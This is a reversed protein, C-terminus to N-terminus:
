RKFKREEVETYELRTLVAQPNSGTGIFRISINDSWRVNPPLNTYDVGIVPGAPDLLVGNVTLAVDGTNVLSWGGYKEPPFTTNKTITLYQNKVLYNKM